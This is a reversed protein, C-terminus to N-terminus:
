PLIRDFAADPTRIGAEGGDKFLLEYSLVPKKKRWVHGVCFLGLRMTLGTLFQLADFGPFLPPQASLGYSSFEGKVPEKLLDGHRIFLKFQQQSSLSKMNLFPLDTRQEAQTALREIAQEETLWGKKVSRRLLRQPNSKVQVRSVVRWGKIEPVPTVPSCQCYDTLGKRWTSAELEQLAQASGHLRLHTGPMVNVDPFSVGIDGQGRAGLVRHLKAFLAAMLMESSFEPDPLVRIELYHDM